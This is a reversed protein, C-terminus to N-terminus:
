NGSLERLSLAVNVLREAEEPTDGVIQFSYTREAFITLGHIHAAKGDPRKGSFSYRVRDTIPPSIVLKAGKLNTFGNSRFGDVMANYHGKIAASRKPDTDRTHDTVSLVMMNTSGEKACAYFRSRADQFEAVAAEDRMKVERVFAWKYGGTPTNVFFEGSVVLANAPPVPSTDAPDDASDCGTIALGTLIAAVLYLGLSRNM